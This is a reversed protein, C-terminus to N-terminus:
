PCVPSAGTPPPPPLHTRVYEIAALFLALATM